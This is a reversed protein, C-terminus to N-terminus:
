KGLLVVDVDHETLIKLNMHVFDYYIVTGYGVVVVDDDEIGFVFNYM